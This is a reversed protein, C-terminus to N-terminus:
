HIVIMLDITTTEFNVFKMSSVVIINYYQSIHDIMLKYFEKDHELLCLCMHICM